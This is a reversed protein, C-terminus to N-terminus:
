FLTTAKLLEVSNIDQILLQPWLLGEWSDVALKGGIIVNDLLKGRGSM